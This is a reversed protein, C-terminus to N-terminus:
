HINDQQIPLLFLGGAVCTNGFLKLKLYFVEMNYHIYPEGVLDNCCPPTWISLLLKDYVFHVHLNSTCTHFCVNRTCLTNHRYLLCSHLSFQLIHLSGSAVLDPIHGSTVSLTVYVRKRTLWYILCLSFSKLSQRHYSHAHRIKLPEKSSALVVPKYGCIFGGAWSTTM